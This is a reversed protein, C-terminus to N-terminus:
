ALTDIDREVVTPVVTMWLVGSGRVAAMVELVGRKLVGEPDTVNRFPSAEM